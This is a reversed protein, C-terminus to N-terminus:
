LRRVKKTKKPFGHSRKSNKVLTKIVVGSGTFINYITKLARKSLAMPRYLKSISSIRRRVMRRALSTALGPLNFLSSRVKKNRRFKLLRGASNHFLVEGLGNTLTLYFNNKKKKFFVYYIRNYFGFDRIFNPKLASFYNMSQQRKNLIPKQASKQLLARWRKLVNEYRAVFHELGGVRLRRKMRLLGTHVINKRVKLKFRRLKYYKWRRFKKRRGRRLAKLFNRKKRRLWVVARQLRRSTFDDYSIFYKSYPRTLAWRYTRYFTGYAWIAYFQWIFQRYRLPIRRLNVRRRPMFFIYSRKLRLLSFYYKERRLLGFFYALFDRNEHPLRLQAFFTFKKALAPKYILSSWRLDRRALYSTFFGYKVAAALKVPRAKKKKSRLFYQSLILILIAGGSAVPM